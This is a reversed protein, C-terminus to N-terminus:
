ANFGYIDAFQYFIKSLGEDYEDQNIAGIKKLVELNDEKLFQKKTRTLQNKNTM